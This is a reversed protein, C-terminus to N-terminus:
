ARMTDELLSKIRAVAAPIAQHAPWSLEEGPDFLEGGITLLYAKDPGRHYLSRAMALLREPNLSHTVAGMSESGAEVPRVQIEGAPLTASADVFIAIDVASIKEALEPTWQQSCSIETKSVHCEKRLSEAVCLGVGDDGRLSNGCALVLSRKM